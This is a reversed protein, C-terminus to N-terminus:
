TENIGSSAIYRPSKTGQQAGCVLRGGAVWIGRGGEQSDLLLETFTPARGPAPVCACRMMVPGDPGLAEIGCPRCTEDYNGREQFVLRGGVNGLCQNLNLSTLWWTGTAEEGDRCAAQLTSHGRKGGGLLTLLRCRRGFITTTATGNGAGGGGGGGDAAVVPKHNVGPLRVAGDGHPLVVRNQSGGGGVDGDHQSAAEPDSSGPAMSPVYRGRLPPPLATALALAAILALLVLTINSTLHM